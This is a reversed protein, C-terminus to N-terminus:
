GQEVTQQDMEPLNTASIAPREVPPERQDVGAVRGKGSM